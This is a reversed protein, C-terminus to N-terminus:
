SSRPALLVDCFLEQPDFWQQVVRLGAAEALEAIEAKSYKHSNETHIGEGAEFSVEMGLGPLRVSQQRDSVLWMEIRGEEELYLARHSFANLDFDAGFTDNIRRLLNKNFAATVGQSDDYVAELVRADKRLDVGVLMRDNPRMSRGLPALFEVAGPRTFNGISSGLWLVLRAQDKSGLPRLERLGAHYDMALADIRLGPFDKLLARASQGIADESIDIPRYTLQGHAALLAEIRSLRFVEDDTTRLVLEPAQGLLELLEPALSKLLAAETRTPYYEPLACIEEFLRSGEADYIFQCSLRKVEAQLGQRVDQAFDDERLPASSRTMSYRQISPEQQMPPSPHVRPAMVLTSRQM